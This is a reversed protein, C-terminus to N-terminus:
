VELAIGLALVLLMIGMALDIYPAVPVLKKRVSDHGVSNSLLVFWGVTAASLYIGYGAQVSVPTSEDIVLSFLALFFLTAKPNLGNTLFGNLWATFITPRSSKDLTAVYDQYSSQRWSVLIGIALYSLYLSALIKLISLFLGSQSVLVAVGLLCYSVHLLIGCGIGLSTWSGVISGFRLSVRVVLAFDPGPSIVAFFHALSILFFESWNM